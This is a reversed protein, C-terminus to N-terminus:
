ELVTAQSLFEKFPLFLLALRSLQKVDLDREFCRM